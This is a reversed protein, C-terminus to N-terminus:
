FVVLLTRRILALTHEIYMLLSSIRRIGPDGKAWSSSGILLSQECNGSDAVEAAGVPVM